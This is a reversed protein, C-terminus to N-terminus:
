GFTETHGLDVSGLLLAEQVELGAHEQLWGALGALGDVWWGVDLGWGNSGVALWGCVQYSAVTGGASAKLADDVRGPNLKSERTFQVRRKTPTAYQLHSPSHAPFPLALACLCRGSSHLLLLSEGPLRRKRRRWRWM